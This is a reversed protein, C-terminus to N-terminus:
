RSRRLAAEMEKKTAASKEAAQQHSARKRNRDAREQDLNAIELSSTQTKKDRRLRLGCKECTIREQSQNSGVRSWCHECEQIKVPVGEPVPM